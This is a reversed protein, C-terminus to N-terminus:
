LFGIALASSITIVNVASFVTMWSLGNRPSPTMMDTFSDHLFKVEMLIYPALAMLQSPGYVILYVRCLMSLIPLVLGFSYVVKLFSSALKIEGMHKM